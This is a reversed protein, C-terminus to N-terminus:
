SKKRLICTPHACVPCVEPAEDGQYIYGCNGCKWGLPAEGKFTKDQVSIILFDRIVNRM